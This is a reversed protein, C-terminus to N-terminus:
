VGEGDTERPQVLLLIGELLVVLGQPVDYVPLVSIAVVNILFQLCRLILQLYFKKIINFFTKTEM